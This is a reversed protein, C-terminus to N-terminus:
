PSVEGIKETRDVSARTGPTREPDMAGFAAESDSMDEASDFHQIVVMTQQEADYFFEVKSAKVGEPPGSSNGIREKVGELREPTVDTFRVVRLSM